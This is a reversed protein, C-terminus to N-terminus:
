QKAKAAVADPAFGVSGDPAVIEMTRMKVEVGDAIKITQVDVGLDDSEAVVFAKRAAQLGSFITALPSNQEVIVTIPPTKFPKEGDDGFTEPTDTILGSYYGGSASSDQPAYGNHIRYRITSLTVKRDLLAPLIKRMQFGVEFLTGQDTEDGVRSDLVISKAQQFLGFFKATFEDSKQVSQSSLKAAALADYYLVGSELRLPEKGNVSNAADNKAASKEITARTQQDDLAALM